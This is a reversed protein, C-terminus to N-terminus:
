IVRQWVCVCVRVCVRVCMCKLPGDFCGVLPIQKIAILGGKVLDLGAYVEGFAGRGLPM